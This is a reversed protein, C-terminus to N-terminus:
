MRDLPFACLSYRVVARLAGHSARRADARRRTPCTRWRVRSERTTAPKGGAGGSRSREKSSGCRRKGSTRTAAVRAARGLQGRAAVHPRSSFRLAFLSCRRAAGRACRWLAGPWRAIGSNLFFDDQTPPTPPLVGPRVIGPTLFHPEALHCALQRMFCCGSLKVLRRMLRIGNALLLILPTPSSEGLGPM